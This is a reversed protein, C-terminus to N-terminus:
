LGPMLDQYRFFFMKKLVLIQYEYKKTSWGWFTILIFALLYTRSYNGLFWLNDQSFRRLVKIDSVKFENSAM